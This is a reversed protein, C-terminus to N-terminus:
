LLSGLIYNISRQVAGAAQSAPLGTDWHCPALLSLIDWSCAGSREKHEAWPVSAEVEQVWGDDRLM